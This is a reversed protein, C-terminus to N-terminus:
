SLHEELMAILSNIPIMFLLIIKVKSQVLIVSTPIREGTSVNIMFIIILFLFFFFLRKSSAILTGLLHVFSAVIKLVSNFTCLVYWDHMVGILGRDYIVPLTNYGSVPVVNM